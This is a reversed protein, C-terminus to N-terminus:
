SAKTAVCSCLTPFPGGGTTNLAPPDGPHAGPPFMPISGRASISGPESSAAAASMIVLTIRASVSSLSPGPADIMTTVRAGTRAITLVFTQDAPKQVHAAAAVFRRREDATLYKRGHEDVLQLAANM